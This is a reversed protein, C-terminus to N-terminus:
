IQSTLLCVINDPSLPHYDNLIQAYNDIPINRYNIRCSVHRGCTNIGVGKKQLKHDNYIIKCGSKYLLYTLHPFEENNMDRFYDPVFKLEDDPLIGYSDFHEIIDDDVKLVCTWHGFNQKTEYLLVFAGYKGFCDFINDYNSLEPYTLLNAKGNILTMIDENSLAESILKNM